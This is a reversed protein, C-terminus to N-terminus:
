AIKKWPQTLSSRATLTALRSQHVAQVDAFRVRPEPDNLASAIVSGLAAAKRPDLIRIPAGTPTGRLPKRRPFIRHGPRVPFDRWTVSRSRRSDSRSAEVAAKMALGKSNGKTMYLKGDPAWNLGHLAHEINGLDTFVRVFEDAVDDGDLDRVLTLDPANAVWLDRGHWALGQISNFGTAFPHAKDAVGDGDTDRLLLVSDAPTQPTPNRYQPGMGVFIRGRADFTISSPNRVLPERAFMTVAFGEPVAPLADRNVTDDFNWDTRPKAPDTEAHVSGCLVM